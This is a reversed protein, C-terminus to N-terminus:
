PWKMGSNLPKSATPQSPRIADLPVGCAMTELYTCSPDGQVHPCVFLDIENQLLPVLRHKFDLNGRFQVEGWLEYRSFAMRMARRMVPRWLIMTRYREYWPAVAPASSVATAEAVGTLPM